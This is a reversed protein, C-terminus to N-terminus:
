ADDAEERSDLILQFRDGIHDRIRELPVSAIPELPIIWRMVLIGIVEAALLAYRPSRESGGVIQDITTQVSGVVADRVEDVPYAPTLVTRIFGAAAGQSGTDEMIGILLDAVRMGANPRDEEVIQHLDELPQFATAVAAGFLGAKNGFYYALLALDVGAADAIDRLTAGNYGKKDFATRAVTLIRSRTVNGRATFESEEESSAEYTQPAGAPTSAHQEM